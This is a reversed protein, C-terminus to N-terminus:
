ICLDLPLDSIDRLRQGEVLATLMAQAEDNGSANVAEILEPLAFHYVMDLDGTGLALSALRSPTPEGTVVVIHPARGKRNRLISLAEARANQARDSRLTWKCSIVAHVIDHPQNAQRLISFRGSHEDVLPGGANIGADSEPARLVVVDPSISYSNGLIAQLAPDAQVADSLLALHRYPEFRSLHESKRSNGVNALTWTGPRVSSFHPFTSSLFDAVIKEFTAGSQQGALKQVEIHAGLRTAMHLAIDRSTKQSKDANSAIGNGAVSLVEHLILQNHFEQRARTLLAGPTAADSM